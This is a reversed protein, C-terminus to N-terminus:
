PAIVDVCMKPHLWLWAFRTRRKASLPFYSRVNGGILHSGSSYVPMVGPMRKLLFYFLWKMLVPGCVNSGLDSIKSAYWDMVDYRSWTCVPMDPSLFCWFRMNHAVLCANFVKIHNHQLMCNGFLMLLVSDSLFAYGGCYLYLSLYICVTATVETCNSQKEFVLSVPLSRM